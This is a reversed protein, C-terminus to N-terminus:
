PTPGPTAPPSANPTKDGGQNPAKAPDPYSPLSTGSKKAQAILEKIKAVEARAADIQTSSQINQSQLDALRAEAQRLADLLVGPVLGGAGGAGSASPPDWRQADIEITGETGSWKPSDVKDILIDKVRSFDTAGHAVGFPGPGSLLPELAATVKDYAGPAAEFVLKIKLKTAGKKGQTTTRAASAGKKKKPDNDYEVPSEVEVRGNVGDPPFTSKGIVVYDWLAPNERPSPM